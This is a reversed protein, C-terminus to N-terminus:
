ERSGYVVLDDFSVQLNAGAFTGADLAIFGSSYTSDTVQELLIDNVFFSLEPGNAIVKLRNAVNLGQNIVASSKWDGTLPTWTGDANRREALYLGNGTVDFRYFQDAGNSRFLVGYSSDAPGSRQRADVELVFDDFMPERLTAFQLTNPANVSVILQEGSISTGGLEDGELFWDGTQGSVFQDQFLIDGPNGASTPPTLGVDACAAGLLAVVLVAALRSLSRWVCM